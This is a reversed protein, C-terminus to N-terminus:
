RSGELGLHPALTGEILVTSTGIIEAPAPILATLEATILPRLLDWRRSVTAHSVNFVAGALDQTLDHRHLAM